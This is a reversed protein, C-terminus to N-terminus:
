SCRRSRQLLGKFRRFGDHQVIKTESNPAQTFARAKGKDGDGSEREADARAGRNEADHVTHQQAREGVGVGFAEHLDRGYELAAVRAIHRIGVELIEALLIVAERVEGGIPVPSRAFSALYATMPTM